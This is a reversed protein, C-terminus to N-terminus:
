RQHAREHYEAIRRKLREEAEEWPIVKTIGAQIRAETERLAQEQWAPLEYSDDTEDHSLEERLFEMSELKGAHTLKKLETLAVM